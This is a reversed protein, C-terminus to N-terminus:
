QYKIIIFLREFDKVFLTLGEKTKFEDTTPDYYLKM